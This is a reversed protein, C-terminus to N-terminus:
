HGLKHKGRRRSCEGGVAVSRLRRRRGDGDKGSGSALGPIHGRLEAFASNVQEVRRRERANRKAVQTDSVGVGVGVEVNADVCSDCFPQPLAALDPRKAVRRRPRKPRGARDVGSAPGAAEPGSEQFAFLAFQGRRVEEDDSGIVTPWIPEDGRCCVPSTPLHLYVDNTALTGSPPSLGLACECPYDRCVPRREVGTYSYASVGEPTAAYEVYVLHAPSTLGHGTLPLRCESM